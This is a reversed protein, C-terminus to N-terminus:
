LEHPEYAIMKRLSEASRYGRRVDEGERPSRLDRLVKRQDGKNHSKQLCVKVFLSFRSIKRATRARGQPSAGAAGERGKGDPPHPSSKKRAPFFQSLVGKRKKQRAM